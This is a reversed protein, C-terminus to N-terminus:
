PKSSVREVKAFDVYQYKGITTRHLTLTYMGGPFSASTTLQEKKASEKSADNKDILLENLIRGDMSTPIALKHIALITPVIDVNSTPLESSFNKKFSPGSALLAIHVEYPSLGGHGAIGRSFSTGAYGKDNKRDDWNEDVLIDASREKHNWHISEFSLTGDIIGKHDGAKKAPTFIGGIWEEAQLASVIKQIVGKDHDKVYIAGEAVIVDESEKDKKLGQQILFEVVSQKGVNTIFGHDSSIIINFNGDLKKDKLSALIRGFEADVIKISEMSTAAGIGDAHATGDPDSFWIASVLPGDLTLGYTILADTVWKHQGANPKAKAPLPGVDTTVKEKWNEPLILGPNIIAGGSVTHNQMMAQGTSGSSFVMMSAGAKQLEEGLTTATLLHGHTAESIKQLDTYDGTNLGKKKDVTPFYVTNGMLGHTAPYSGSSYSSANVRTVTPFVSHHQKGYSGAQAFAYLNPMHEPTIYDPRLGDFFVILTRLDKPAPQQATLPVTLICALLCCFIHKISPQMINHANFNSYRDSFSLVYKSTGGFKSIVTIVAWPASQPLWTKPMLRSCIVLIPFASHFIIKRQFELAALCCRIVQEVNRSGRRITSLFTHMINKCCSRNLSNKRVAPKTTCGHGATTFFGAPMTAGWQTMSASVGSEYHSECANIRYYYGKLALEAKIFEVEAFTMM